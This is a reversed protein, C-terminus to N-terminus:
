FFTSNTLFSLNLLVVLFIFLKVLLAINISIVVFNSFPRLFTM